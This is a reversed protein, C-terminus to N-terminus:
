HDKPLKEYYPIKAEKIKLLITIKTRCEQLNAEFEECEKEKAQATKVKNRKIKNKAANNEAM